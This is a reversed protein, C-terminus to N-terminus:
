FEMEDGIMIKKERIKGAVIEIVYKSKKKPNYFTFPLFNEKMEVVRKNGDLFLIDLPYFVFFNHLPVFQEYPFDMILAFDDRKRSFMLGLMKGSLSKTIRSKTAIINKKTKNKLM